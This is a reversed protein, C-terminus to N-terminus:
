PPASDGAERVAIELAALFREQADTSVFRNQKARITQIAATATQGRWILYAALVTGTRGLGAKCHVCVSKGAAFLADLELCLDIMDHAAPARMDAFGAERHLIGAAAVASGSLHHESELSILVDVGCERLSRLESEVDGLLGPRRCGGFRPVGAGATPHEYVWIPRLKPAFVTPSPRPDTQPADDDALPLSAVDVERTVALEDVPDDGGAASFAPFGYIPTPRDDDAAASRTAARGSRLRSFAVPRRVTRPLAEAESVASLLVKRTPRTDPGIPEPSVPAEEVAEEVAADPPALPSRNVVRGRALISTTGRFASATEASRTAVLVPIQEALERLADIMARSAAEDLGATPEDVALLRPRHTAVHVLYLLRAAVPGAEARPDFLTAYNGPGVPAGGLLASGSPATGFARGALYRLLSSKGAGEPGLLAHVVGPKMALDLRDLVAATPYRLSFQHLQLPSAILLRFETEPCVASNWDHWRGPPGIPDKKGFTM